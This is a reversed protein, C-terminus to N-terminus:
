RSAEVTNHNAMLAGIVEPNTPEYGMQETLEEKITEFREAKGGYLKIHVTMATIDSGLRRGEPSFLGLWGSVWGESHSASTSQPLAVVYNLNLTRAETGVEFLEVM